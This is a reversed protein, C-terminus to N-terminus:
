AAFDLYLTTKTLIQSVSALELKGSLFDFENQSYLIAEASNCSAKPFPPIPFGGPGAKGWKQKERYTPKM